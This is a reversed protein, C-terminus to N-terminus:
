AAELQPAIREYTGAFVERSTVPQITPIRDMGILRAIRGAAQGYKCGWRLAGLSPLDNGRQAGSGVRWEGAYSCILTTVGDHMLIHVDADRLNRNVAAYCARHRSKAHATLYDPVWWRLYGRPITGLHKTFGMDAFVRMLGSPDRLAEYTVASWDPKPSPKRTM